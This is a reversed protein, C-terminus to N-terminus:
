KESGVVFEREGYVISKGKGIIKIQYTSARKLPITAWVERSKRYFTDVQRIHKHLVFPREDASVYVFLEANVDMQVKLKVSKISKKRFTGDDFKKTKAEWEVIEEGDEFHYVKGDTTMAYIENDSKAFDVVDIDAYPTWVGNWTDFTYVVKDICIYYKRGDGIAAGKELNTINLRESIERPFGGAYTQVGTESLFFLMGGVESISRDDVCGMKSAEMIKFQSPTYGYLEWMQDRKFFIVHDQYSTIGTFDGDSYVDAAWSDTELGAYEDWTKFDGVKSAYIDSGSIGFIRNYYVTTFDIDYPCDFSGWEDDIYDYYKKDPFIVLFGNFDVISKRGATVRGRVVGNYVLNTSDVYMPKGEVMMFNHPATRTELISMPKRPAIAPILESDLNIGFSIEKDEILEKMNLGQFLLPQTFTNEINELIPMKM